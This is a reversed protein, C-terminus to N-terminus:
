WRDEGDGDERGKTSYRSNWQLLWRNVYMKRMKYKGPHVETKKMWQVMNNGLDTGNGDMMEMEICDEMVAKGRVKKAM